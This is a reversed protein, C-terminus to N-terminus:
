YARKHRNVAESYQAQDMVPCIRTVLLNARGETIM